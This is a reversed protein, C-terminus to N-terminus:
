ATKIQLNHKADIKELESFCFCLLRFFIFLFFIACFTHLTTWALSSYIVKSIKVSSILPLSHWRVCTVSWSFPTVFIQGCFLFSFLKEFSIEKQHKKAFEDYFSVDFFIRNIFKERQTSLWDSSWGSLWSSYFRRPLLFLIIMASCDDKHEKMTLNRRRGPM